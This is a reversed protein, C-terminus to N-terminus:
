YSIQTGMRVPVQITIDMRGPFQPFFDNSEFSYEVHSVPYSPNIEAITALLLQGLEDAEYLGTNEIIGDQKAVHSQIISWGISGTYRCETEGGGEVKGGPFVIVLPCNTDAPPKKGDIGIYLSLPKSYKQM